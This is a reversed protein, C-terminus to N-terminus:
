DMYKRTYAPTNLDEGSDGTRLGLGASRVVPVPDTKAQPVEVEGIQRTGLRRLFRGATSTATAPQKEPEEEVYLDQNITDVDPGGSSATRTLFGKSPPLEESLYEQRLDVPIDRPDDILTHHVEEEAHAEAEAKEEVVFDPAPEGEPESTMSQHVETAKYLETLHDDEDAIEKEVACELVPDNEDEAESTEPRLAEAMRTGATLAESSIQVGSQDTENFGTAIVTVQLTDGLAEDIGYGFFVHAEPGAAEEIFQMAAATEHLEVTSGVLNVLVAKSGYIDVDGLLPSNIAETAAVLARDEGAARGTGMIAVGMGEMVTRVDAFDLNVTDSRSIIDHIGRTAEYLVNDAVGFAEQMSTNPPVVELLRQNPIVILTDVNRRLRTLGSDAQAMRIRGEFVFPKTVIGVTLAGQERAIEAVVAAAGTGTGGGMGATVFVMDAGSLAKRLTDRDEEAAGEGVAPNGGSGLGKTLLPGIQIVNHAQSLSLAQMDTNITIFEVGTLGSEIMRNVANGGAGGVGVVRIDALRQPEEAFEFMM